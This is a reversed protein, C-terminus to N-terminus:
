HGGTMVNESTVVGDAGVHPNRAPSQPKTFGPPAPSAMDLVVRPGPMEWARSPKGAEGNPGWSVQLTRVPVLDVHLIYILRNQGHNDRSTDEAQTSQQSRRTFFAWLKRCSDRPAIPYILHYPRAIAARHAPSWVDVNWPFCHQGILLVDCEREHLTPGRTTETKNLGGPRVSGSFGRALSADWSGTLITDGVILSFEPWSM